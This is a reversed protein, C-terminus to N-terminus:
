EYLQQSIEQLLKVSDYHSNYDLITTENMLFAQLQRMRSIKNMSVDVPLDTYIKSLFLRDVFKYAEYGKINPHSIIEINFDDHSFKNSVKNKPLSSVHISMLPGIHIIVKEQRIRGSGKYPDQPDLASIRKCVSTEQINLTFNTIPKNKYLFQGICTLDIEGCKYPLDKSYLHNIATNNSLVQYINQSYITNLDNPTRSLTKIIFNEVINSFLTENLKALNMLLDVYHYGSHYLAGYGFKFPHNNKKYVEEPMVWNGGAFHLDISTIPVHNQKMFKTLFNKLYQYGYHNRRECSIYVKRLNHKALDRIDNFDQLVNAKSSDYATLPKDTFVHMKNNLAWKIYFKHSKAETCVLAADVQNPINSTIIKYTINENESQERTLYLRKIHSLDNKILFQDIEKKADQLDIILKVYFGYDKILKIITNAYINRFHPGCGIIIINKLM